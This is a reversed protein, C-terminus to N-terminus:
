PARRLADIAEAVQGWPMTTKRDLRIKKGTEVREIDLCGNTRVLRFGEPLNREILIATEDDIM